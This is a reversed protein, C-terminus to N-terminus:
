KKKLWLVSRAPLELDLGGESMTLVAGSRADELEVGLYGRARLNVKVPELNYNHLVMGTRGTPQLSVRAPADLKLGLPGTFAERLTNAWERPLELLGLPRPCLLVEGVADFDAQAFTHTNLVYVNAGGEVVRKTLFAEAKGDVVAQLIAEAGDVKLRCAIDLGHEVDVEKGDVLVQSARAPSGIVPWGVGAVSAIRQGEEEGLAGLFGATMVLTRRDRLAKGVQRAIDHDSAAQTPLFLVGADEPYQGHPTLPIGLMGLMDMVYMDGGPDSGAPKYGAAGSVPNARVEKALDALLTFDRRLLDHGPHGETLNGYNFFIIEPAGALVSQWAQEVFDQGDCDLHDFWAGGAKGHSLTSLWRFNVFGEYPQVFGFRQTRAGRTETGVWVTDFMAPQRSPDYGFLHFRDYWQPYKIIMHINPNVERPAEIFLEKCLRVLLDRRYEGWSRDGRAAESEESTDETCVFDDVIIEDFVAAAMQMVRRLDEQTKPNQWNFWGLPGVERVGFGEGPMTAIGGIVKIGHGRLFDRVRELHSQEVALGGRYFEVYATSIGLAELARVCEMGDDGDKLIGDVSHATIYVSLRLDDQRSAAAEKFNEGSVGPAALALAPWIVWGLRMGRGM